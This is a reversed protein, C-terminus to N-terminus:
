AGQFPQAFQPLQKAIQKAERVYAEMDYDVKETSKMLKKLQKLTAELNQALRNAYFLSKSCCFHVEILTTHENLTRDEADTIHNYALQYTRIDESLDAM